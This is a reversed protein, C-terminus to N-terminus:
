SVLVENFFILISQIEDQLDSKGILEELLKQVAEVEMGCAAIQQRITATSQALSAETNPHIEQAELLLLLCPIYDQKEQALKMSLTAKLNLLDSRLEKNDGADRLLADLTSLTVELDTCARLRILADDYLADRSETSEQNYKYLELEATLLALANATSEKAMSLLEYSLSLIASRMERDLELALVAQLSSLANAEDASFNGASTAAALLATRQPTNQEFYDAWLTLDLAIGEATKGVERLYNAKKSKLSQATEANVSGLEQEIFVLAEEPSLEALKKEIREEDSPLAAPTEQTPALTAVATSGDQAFITSCTFGTALSFIFQAKMVLLFTFLSYFDVAHNM